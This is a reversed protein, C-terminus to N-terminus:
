LQNGQGEGFRGGYRRNVRRVDAPEAHVRIRTRCAGSDCERCPGSYVLALASRVAREAWATHSVSVAGVGRARYSEMYSDVLRNWRRM